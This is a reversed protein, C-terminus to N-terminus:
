DCFFIRIIKWHIFFFSTTPATTENRVCWIFGSLMAADHTQSNSINTSRNSIFLM